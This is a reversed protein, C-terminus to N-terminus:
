NEIDIDKSKVGCFVSHAILVAEAEDDTVDIGFKEKVMDIAEQKLKDRPTKPGQVIEVRKRWESPLQFRFEVQNDAAWSIIAGALYSLLKVTAINTKLLCEEMVIIDPEYYDLVDKIEKMMKPVRINSDKIKHLDILMHGSYEGDIFLSVGTKNTSADIGCVRM